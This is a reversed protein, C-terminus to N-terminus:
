GRALRQQARRRAPRGRAGRWDVGRGPVAIPRQNGTRPPPAEAVEVAEVGTVGLAVGEGEGAAELEGVGEGAGVSLGEGVGADPQLRPLQAPLPDAVNPSPPPPPAEKLLGEPM